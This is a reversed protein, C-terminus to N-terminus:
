QSGQQSTGCTHLTPMQSRSHFLSIRLLITAWLVAASVSYRMADAPWTETQLLTCLTPCMHAQGEWLSVAQLGLVVTAVVVVSDARLIVYRGCSGAYDLNVNAAGARMIAPVTVASFDNSDTGSYYNCSGVQPKGLNIKGQDSCALWAYRTPPCLSQM